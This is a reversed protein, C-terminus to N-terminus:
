GAKLIEDGLSKTPGGVVMSCGHVFSMRVSSYFFFLIFVFLMSGCGKQLGVFGDM